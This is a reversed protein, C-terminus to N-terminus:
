CNMLMALITESSVAVTIAVCSAKCRPDAHTVEAIAVTNAVVKPIDVGCMLSAMDIDGLFHAFIM